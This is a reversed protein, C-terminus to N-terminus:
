KLVQVKLVPGYLELVREYLRTGLAMGARLAKSGARVAEGEDM